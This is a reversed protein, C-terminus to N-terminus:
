RPFRSIRRTTAAPECVLDGCSQGTQARVPNFETAHWRLLENVELPTRVTGPLQEAGLDLDVDLLLSALTSGKLLWPAPHRDRDGSSLVLGRGLPGAPM